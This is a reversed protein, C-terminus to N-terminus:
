RKQSDRIRELDLEVARPLNKGVYRSSTRSGRTWFAYWYPGHTARRRCRNCRKNGCRILKLQYTVGALHEVQHITTKDLKAPSSSSSAPPSTAPAARTSSKRRARGKTNKVIMTKDLKRGCRLM